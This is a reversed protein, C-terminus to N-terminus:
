PRRQQEIVSRSKHAKALQEARSRATWYATANAVVIAAQAAFLAATRTQVTGFAREAQAYLNPVRHIQGDATLPLSLTSLIGNEVCARGFELYRFDDRASDVGVIEGTRFADLCPGAGSDYQAQDIECVHPNSFVTTAPTGRDMQTMGAYAAVTPLAETAFATVRGLTERISKDGAFFQSLAAFGGELSAENPM